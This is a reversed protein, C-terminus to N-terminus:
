QELLWFLQDLTDTEDNGCVNAFFEYASACSVDSFIRKQTEAAGGEQGKLHDHKALLDERPDFDGTCVLLDANHINAHCYM